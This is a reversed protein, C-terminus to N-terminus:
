IACEDAGVDREYGVRYKDRRLEMLLEFAADRWRYCQLKGDFWCLENPEDAPHHDLSTDSGTSM